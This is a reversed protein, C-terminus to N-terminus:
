SRGEGENDGTEGTEGESSQGQAGEQEPPVADATRVASGPYVRENGRVIVTLGQAVGEGSIAIMNGLTSSTTVPIPTAKGEAITYVMTANGQRVIADKSVALSTFKRNLSLTTKVLMGGGLRHDRNDVEIIVPFTHAVESANPAVGTVIGTVPEDGGSTRISVTTGKDVQGFHREPLDVIVKVVSLDVVEYVPTGRNVWEGVDILRRVTYGDFPSRIACNYLDLELQKMEALYQEHLGQARQHEAVARDLGGESVLNQGHLDRSRALEKEALTAAAQAQAVQARKADLEFRIREAAISVLTEGRAIDNGEDADIRIVRGSVEAVIRSNSLAITRGVLTLQDHFELTTVSDTEVLMPPMGQAAVLLPTLSLSVALTTFVAIRKM